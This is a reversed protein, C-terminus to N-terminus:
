QVTGIDSPSTQLARLWGPRLLTGSAAGGRHTAWVLGDHHKISIGGGRSSVQVIRGDGRALSSKLLINSSRLISAAECVMLYSKIANWLTFVENNGCLISQCM